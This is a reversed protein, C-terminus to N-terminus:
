SPTPESKYIAIVEDFKTAPAWDRRRSPGMGALAFKVGVAVGLDFLRWGPIKGRSTTGGTQYGLLFVKNGRVGVEHPEVFRVHGRYEFAVMWKMQIAQVCTVGAREGIM